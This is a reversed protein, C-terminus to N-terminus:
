IDRTISQTKFDRKVLLIVVAAKKTILTSSAYAKGLAKEKLKSTIQIEVTNGQPFFVSDKWLWSWNRLAVLRNEIM